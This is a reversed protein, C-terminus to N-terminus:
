QPTMLSKLSSPLLAHLQIELILAEVALQLARNALAVGAHGVDTLAQVDRRLDRGAVAATPVSGPRREGVAEHGLCRRGLRGTVGHASRAQAQARGFVVALREEPM